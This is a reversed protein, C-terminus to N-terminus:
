DRLETIRRATDKDIRYLYPSRRLFYDKGQRSLILTYTHLRTRVVLHGMERTKKEPSVVEQAMLPFLIRLKREAEGASIEKEKGRFRLIWGKKKRRLIYVEKGGSSFSVAEVESLAPNLISLDVWSSVAPLAPKEKWIAFRALLNEPVLFVRQEGELRVFTSDWYPGRKGVLLHFLRHKERFGALHLAAKETLSFEALYSAGRVREEGSLQSLRTLFERVLSEKAPRPFNERPSPGWVEWHGNRFVIRLVKDPESGLWVRLEDAQAWSKKGLRVMLAERVGPPQQARQIVVYMLVLIVLLGSLLFLNRPSM